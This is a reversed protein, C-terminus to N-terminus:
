GKNAPSQPRRSSDVTSPSPVSDLKTEFTTEGLESTRDISTVAAESLKRVISYSANSWQARSPLVGPSQKAEAEFPPSPSPQRNTTFSSDTSQVRSGSTTTPQPEGDRKPSSVEIPVESANTIVPQKWHPVPEVSKFNLRRLIHRKTLRVATDFGICLALIVSLVRCPHGVEFM